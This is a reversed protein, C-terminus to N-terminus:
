PVKSMAAAAFDWLNENWDLTLLAAFTSREDVDVATRSLITRTGINLPESDRQLGNSLALCRRTVVLFSAM